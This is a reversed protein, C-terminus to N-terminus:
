DNILLQQLLKLDSWAARKQAPTRLLYAPHYTVVVPINLKPFSNLGRLKGVSVDKKLLNQASIRGVSLIVKPQILAIQQQLYKECSAVEQKVPDRNNPPRCKLINAIFVQERSLGIAKLMENLLKGAKGVFPEGQRDEDVGPAEGIVMCDAQRDGVGFVTQTRSQCLGCQQCGKVTEALTLWEAENKQKECVPQVNSDEVSVSAFDRTSVWSEVGMAKLYSQQSAV